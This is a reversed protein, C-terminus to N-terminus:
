QYRPSPARRLVDRAFHMASTQNTTPSNQPLYHGHDSGRADPIQEHYVQPPIAHKRTRRPGHYGLALGFDDTQFFIFAQLLDGLPYAYRLIRDQKSALVAVRETRSVARRYDKPDATCTDDVAGAMLCVQRITYTTPLRKLTELVVRAGLSHSVFSLESERAVVDGIYTALAAATDDADRGEIPYSVTGSWHDGPWLVAVYAVSPAPQLMKVARLLSACGQQRNVNYGHFLLALRREARLQMESGLGLGSVIVGPVIAGGTDASRFDLLYTM